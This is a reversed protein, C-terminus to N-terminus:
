YKLDGSKFMAEMESATLSELKVDDKGSSNSGKEVQAQKKRLASLEGKKRGKSTAKKTAQEVTSGKAMLYLADLLQPNHELGTGKIMPMLGEAIQQMQPELSAFDENQMYAHYTEAFKQKQQETQAQKQEQEWLSKIANVAGKEKIADAFDRNDKEPDVKNQAALDKLQREVDSFKQNTQTYAKELNRYGNWLDEESKFRGEWPKPTSEEDEIIEEDADVDAEESNEPSVELTDEDSEQNILTELEESSAEEIDLQDTEM